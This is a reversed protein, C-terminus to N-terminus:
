HLALGEGRFARPLRRRFSTAARAPLVGARRGKPLCRWHELGRIAAAARIAAATAPQSLGAGGAGSARGTRVTVTSCRASPSVTESVPWTRALSWTLRAKRRSPRMISRGTLTPSTSRAPWSTARSSGASGASRAASPAPRGRRRRLRHQGLRAEGEPPLLLEQLVAPRGAGAEVLGLLRKWVAWAWTSEAWACSRM